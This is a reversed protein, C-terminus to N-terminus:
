MQFLMVACVFVFPLTVRTACSQLDLELDLEDDIHGGAASANAASSPSRLPMESDAAAVVSIKTSATTFPEEPPLVLLLDPDQSRDIASQLTLTQAQRKRRSGMGAIFVRVDVEVDSDVPSLRPVDGFRSPAATLSFAHEHELSGAEANAPSAYRVLTWGALSEGDVMVDVLTGVANRLRINLLASSELAFDNASRVRVRFFITDNQFFAFHEPGFRWAAADFERHATVSGSPEVLGRAVDCLNESALLASFSLPLAVDSAPCELQALTEQCEASSVRDNLSACPVLPASAALPGIPRTLSHM